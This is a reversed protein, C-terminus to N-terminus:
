KYVVEGILYVVEGDPRKFKVQEGSRKNNLAKALPSVFSLKGKAINAEDVGTIQLIQVDGTSASILEVTAGFRIDGQPQDGPNIVRASNIREQLLQLKANIYNIAVRRDNENHNEFQTKEQILEEQEALLADLGNQTVYNIVGPPLFARPAVYPMEEQDGERVFGRSM